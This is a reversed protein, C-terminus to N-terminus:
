GREKYLEVKPDLIACLDGLGFAHALDTKLNLKLKLQGYIFHKRGEPTSTHTGEM